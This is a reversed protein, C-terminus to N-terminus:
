LMCVIASRSGADRFKSCLSGLLGAILTSRAGCSSTLSQLLALHRAICAVLPLYLLSCFGSSEGEAIRMSNGTRLWVSYKLVM